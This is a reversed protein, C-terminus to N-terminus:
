PCCMRHGNFMYGAIIDKEDRRGGTAFAILAGRNNEGRAPQKLLFSVWAFGVEGSHVIKGM